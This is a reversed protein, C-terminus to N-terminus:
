ARKSLYDVAALDYVALGLAEFITIEETNRRGEIKGLLADGLEGAIKEKGIAGSGLPILFDGAENLISEMRDAYVKGKVLTETDLERVNASCAGVANIHAGDKVDKGFLVPEKSSTVTCIIDAGRVAEGSTQCVEVPLHFKEGMEAAYRIASKTDIDWVFAKKINRILRIAELHKRAQRGSGLLALTEANKNSLLETAVASVAATRIATVADGDAAAVLQGTFTEFVL